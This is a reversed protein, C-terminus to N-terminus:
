GCEVTTRRFKAPTEPAVLSPAPGIDCDLNPSHFTAISLREKKTNVTARHEISRYAGNTVIELIDGINIVFANPLPSVPIWFGDKKIQLGEIENVQLLITLANADSHPYLGTVLEPQPCPPYYNMRMSQSVEKFLTKMEEAKMHLAKAMFNLMKIALVKVEASYAEIADRFPESGVGHNILQFFGWEQSAKDLKHLESDMLDTNLLNQMNIVPIEPLSSPDSLILHDNDRRHYRPPVTTLKEKVLEQVIPVKVSSAIKTEMAREVSRVKGKRRKVTWNLPCQM